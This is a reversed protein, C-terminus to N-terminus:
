LVIHKLDQIIFLILSKRELYKFVRQVKYINNDTIDTKYEIEGYKRNNTNFFRQALISKAEVYELDIESYPITKGISHTDTKIYETIDHTEGGAFFDDLRQVVIEGNFPIM